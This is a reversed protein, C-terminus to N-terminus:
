KDIQTLLQKRIQVINGEKGAQRLNIASPTFYKHAQMFELQLKNWEYETELTGSNTLETYLRHGVKFFDDRGLYDLDADALISELQTLPTQPMRTALIMGCIMAIQDETYGFLPLLGEALKCSEEEHGEAKVLFGADHYLAATLLLILDSPSIDELVAINKAALYVDCTHEINHYTLDAPLQKTLKSIIYDSAREFDM